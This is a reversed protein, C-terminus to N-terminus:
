QMDAISTETQTPSPETSEHWNLFDRTLNPHTKEISTQTLFTPGMDMEPTDVYQVSTVSVFM